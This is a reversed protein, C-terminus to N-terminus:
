DGANPHKIVIVLETVRGILIDIGEKKAVKDGLDYEEQSDESRKMPIQGHEQPQETQADTEIAAHRFWRNRRRGFHDEGPKIGM